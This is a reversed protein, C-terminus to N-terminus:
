FSFEIRANIGQAWFDVDRFFLAPRLVDPPPPNQSVTTLIPVFKPNVVPDIETGPRVV